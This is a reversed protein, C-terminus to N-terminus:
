GEKKKYAEMGLKYYILWEHEYYEVGGRGMEGRGQKTILDSWRMDSRGQKRKGGKVRGSMIAKTWWTSADREMVKEFFCWRDRQIIDNISKNNTIELIRTNTIKDLLSINAISRLCKMHFTRPKEITNAYNAM